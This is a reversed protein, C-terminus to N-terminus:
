RGSRSLRGTWSKFLGFAVKLGVTAGVVLLIGPMNDTIVGTVETILTGANTADLITM